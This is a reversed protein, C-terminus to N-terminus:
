APRYIRPQWERASALFRLYPEHDALRASLLSAEFGAERLLLGTLLWRLSAAVALFRDV